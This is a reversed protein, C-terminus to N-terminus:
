GNLKSIQFGIKAFGVNFASNITKSGKKIMKTSGCRPCKKRAM